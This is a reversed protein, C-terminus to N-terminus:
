LTIKFEKSKEITRNLLQAEVVDPKEEPNDTLVLKRIPFISSSNIENTLEGTSINYYKFLKDSVMSVFVNKKYNPVFLIDGVKLDEDTNFSYKKKKQVTTENNSESMFAVLITKSAM